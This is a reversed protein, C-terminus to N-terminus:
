SNADQAVAPNNVEQKESHNWAGRGKVPGWQSRHCVLRSLFGSRGGVFGTVEPLDNARRIQPKTVSIALRCPVLRVGIICAGPLAETSILM